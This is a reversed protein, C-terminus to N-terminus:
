LLNELAYIAREGVVDERRAMATITQRLTQNCFRKLKMDPNVREAIIHYKQPYHLIFDMAVSALYQYDEMIDSNEIIYDIALDNKAEVVAGMFKKIDVPDGNHDKIDCNEYVYQFVRDDIKNKACFSLYTHYSRNVTENGEIEIGNDLLYKVFELDGNQLGYAFVQFYLNAYMNVNLNEEEVLERLANLDNTMCAMMYKQKIQLNSM